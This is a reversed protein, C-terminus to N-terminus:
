TALVALADARLPQAFKVGCRDGDTWTVRGSILEGNLELAVGSWVPHACRAHLCAGIASLNIVHARTRGDATDLWVPRFVKVRLAARPVPQREVSPTM